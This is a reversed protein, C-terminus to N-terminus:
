MGGDLASDIIDWVEDSGMNVLYRLLEKKEVPDQSSRYIELIGEDYGSIMMGELASERIDESDSNKYIEVLTANVSDGGVIGLAEIAQEQLEPDSGDLALERLSDADGSIAYAEILSESIGTSERLRRLQEHAGM